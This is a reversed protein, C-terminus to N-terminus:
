KQVVPLTRVGHLEKYNKLQDLRGEWGDNQRKTRDTNWMFGIDNLQQIREATLSCKKKYGEPTLKHFLKYQERTNHVFKGLSPNLKYRIPILLSGHQEKYEHLMQIRDEWSVRTPTSRRKTGKGDGENPPDKRKRSVIGSAVILDDFKIGSDALHNADAAAIGADSMQLESNGSHIADTMMLSSAEHLADMAANTQEESLDNNDNCNYANTDAPAGDHDRNDVTGYIDM